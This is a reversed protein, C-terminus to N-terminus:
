SIGHWYSTCNCKVSFHIQNFALVVDTTLHSLLYLQKRFTHSSDKTWTLEISWYEICCIFIMLDYGISETYCPEDLASMSSNCNEGYLKEIYSIIILNDWKICWVVIFQMQRRRCHRQSTPLRVPVPRIYQSNSQLYVNDCSSQQTHWSMTFLCHSSDVLWRRSLNHIFHAGITTTPTICSPKLSGM